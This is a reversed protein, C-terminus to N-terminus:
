NLKCYARKIEFNRKNIFSLCEKYDSFYLDPTYFYTWICWNRIRCKKCLHSHMSHLNEAFIEVIKFIDFVYATTNTLSRQAISMYAKDKKSRFKFSGLFIWGFIIYIKISVIKNVNNYYEGKTYVKSHYKNKM